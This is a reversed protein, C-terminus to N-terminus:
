LKKKQPIVSQKICKIGGSTPIHAVNKSETGGFKKKTPIFQSNKCKM